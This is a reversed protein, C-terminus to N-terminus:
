NKKFLIVFKQCKSPILALIPYFSSFISLFSNKSFFNFFVFKRFFIFIKCFIAFFLCFVLKKIKKTLIKFLATPRLKAEIQFIKWNQFTWFYKSLFFSPNQDYSYEFTIFFATQWQFLLLLLFFTLFCWKKFYTSLSRRKVVNSYLWSWFGLKKTELYEQVKWFQFVKWISAFNRGVAKNLIRVFFILFNTKQQKKQSKKCFKWKKEFFTKKWNKKSFNM